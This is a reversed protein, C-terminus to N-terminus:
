VSSEALLYTLERRGTRPHLVFGTGGLRGRACGSAEDGVFGKDLDRLHQHLANEPDENQTQDMQAQPPDEGSVASM